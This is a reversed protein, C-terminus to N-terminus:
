DGQLIRHDGTNGSAISPTTDTKIHVSVGLFNIFKSEWKPHFYDHEDLFECIQLFDKTTGISHRLLQNHQFYTLNSILYQFLSVM